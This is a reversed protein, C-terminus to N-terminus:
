DIVYKLRNKLEIIVPSSMEMIGVMIEESEILEKEKFNKIVGLCAEVSKRLLHKDGLAKESKLIEILANTTEILFLEKNHLSIRKHAIAAYVSVTLILTLIFYTAIALRTIELGLTYHVRDFVTLLVPFICFYPMIALIWVWIVTIGFVSKSYPGYKHRQKLTFFYVIM